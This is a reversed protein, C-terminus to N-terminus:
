GERIFFMPFIKGKGRGEDKVSSFLPNNKGKGCGEDKGSLFPFIKGRGVDRM